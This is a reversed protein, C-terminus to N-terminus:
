PSPPTPATGNTHRLVNASLRRLLSQVTQIEEPTLGM